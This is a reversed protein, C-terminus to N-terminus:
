RQPSAAGLQPHPAKLSREIYLLVWPCDKHHRVAKLLLEWNISDFFTM